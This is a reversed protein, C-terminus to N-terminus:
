IIFLVSYNVCFILNYNVTEFHYLNSISGIRPTYVQYVRNSQKGKAVGQTFRRTARVQVEANEGAVSTM